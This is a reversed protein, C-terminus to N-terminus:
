RGLAGYGPLKETEAFLISAFRTRSARFPARNGSVGFMAGCIPGESMTLRWDHETRSSLQTAPARSRSDHTM